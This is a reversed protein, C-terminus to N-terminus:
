SATTRAAVIAGIARRERLDLSDVYADVAASVAASRTAGRTVAIAAITADTRADIFLGVKRKM